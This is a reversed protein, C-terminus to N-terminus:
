RVGGERQDRVVERGGVTPFLGGMADAQQRLFQEFDIQEQRKQNAAESKLGALATSIRARLEKESLDFRKGQVSLRKDRLDSVENAREQNQVRIGSRFIGRQLANNIAGELSNRRMIDAEQRSIDLDERGLGIGELGFKLQNAAGRRQSSFDPGSGSRIEAFGAGLKLDFEDQGMGQQIPLATFTIPKQQKQPSRFIQNTRLKPDSTIREVM